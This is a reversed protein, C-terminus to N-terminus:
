WRRLREPNEDFIWDLLWILGAVDIMSKISTIRGMVVCFILVLLFKPLGSM